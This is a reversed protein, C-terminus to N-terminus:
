ISLNVTLTLLLVKCMRAHGENYITWGVYGHGQLKTSRSSTYIMSSSLVFINKGTISEMLIYNNCWKSWKFKLVM